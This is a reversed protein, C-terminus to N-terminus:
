SVPDVGVTYAATYILVRYRDEIADALRRVEAPTLFCQETKSTQRPLRIGRCPTRPVVEDSEATSMIRGFVRYNSSGTAYM